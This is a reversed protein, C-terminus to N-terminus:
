ELILLIWDTIQILCGWSPCIGEWNWQIFAICARQEIVPEAVGYQDIRNRLVALLRALSDENVPNDPTGKAQLVIHAGGKLDLGLKIRGNVPFVAVLAVVGVLFVIGLRWRDKRLM